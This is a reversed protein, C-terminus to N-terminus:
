GRPLTSGLRPCTLGMCHARQSPCLLTERFSKGTPRGYDHLHIGLSWCVKGGPRPQVEEGKDHVEVRNGMKAGQESLDTAARKIPVKRFAQAVDRKWMLPAVGVSMYM